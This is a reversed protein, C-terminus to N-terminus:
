VCSQIKGYVSTRKIVCLWIDTWVSPYIKGNVAQYTVLIFKPLVQSFFEQTGHLMTQPWDLTILVHHEKFTHGLNSQKYSHHRPLSSYFAMSKQTEKRKQISVPSHLCHRGLSKSSKYFPLEPGASPPPLVWWTPQMEDWRSIMRINLSDLKLDVSSRCM